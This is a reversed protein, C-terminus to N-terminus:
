RRPVAAAMRLKWVVRADTTGLDMAERVFSLGKHRSSPYNRYEVRWRRGQIDTRSRVSETYSNEKLGFKTKMVWLGARQLLLSTVLLPERYQHPVGKGDDIPVFGGEM